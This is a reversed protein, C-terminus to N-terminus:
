TCFLVIDTDRPIESHRRTLEEPEMRLAGPITYPAAAADIASRLDVIMLAERADLRQRVEAPDVRAVSLSRIFLRRRVYKVGVYALVVAAVLGIANRGFQAIWLVVKEIWDRLGYGLGIWTASWMVSNAMDYALFRSVSVGVTGALGVALPNLGPLFKTILLSRLLGHKVLLGQARRVCSDPELTLRCLWGLVHAGGRRGITYWFLDASVSATAAASLVVAMDLQHRGALAGATLLVPLVPVPIGAQNVFVWAFLMLPGYQRIFEFEERM